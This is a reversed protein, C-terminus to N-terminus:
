DNGKEKEMQEFSEHIQRRSEHWEKELADEHSRDDSKYQPTEHSYISELIKKKKNEEHKEVNQVAPPFILSRNVYIWLIMVILQVGYALEELPLEGPALCCTSFIAVPDGFHVQFQTPHRILLMHVFEHLIGGVVMASFGVNLFGKFSFTGESTIHNYMRSFIYGIILLFAVLFAYILPSQNLRGDGMMSPTSSGIWVGLLISVFICVGVSILLLRFSLM